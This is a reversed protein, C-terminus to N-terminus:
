KYKYEIHETYILKYTCCLYKIFLSLDTYLQCDIGTKRYFM